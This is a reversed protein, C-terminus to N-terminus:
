CHPHTDEWTGGWRCGEPAWCRCSQVRASYTLWHAICHAPTLLPRQSRPRLWGSWRWRDTWVSSSCLRKREVDMQVSPILPHHHRRVEVAILSLMRTILSLYEKLIFPIESSKHVCAFHLFFLEGLVNQWKSKDGYFSINSSTWVKGVIHWLFFDFQNKLLMVALLSLM